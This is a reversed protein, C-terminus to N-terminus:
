DLAQKYPLWRDRSQLWHWVALWPLLESQLGLYEPMHRLLQLWLRFQQWPRDHSVSHEPEIKLAFGDLDTSLTSRLESKEQLYKRARGILGFNVVTNWGACRLYKNVSFRRSWECFKLVVKISRNLEDHSTSLQTHWLVTDFHQKWQKKCRHDNKNM